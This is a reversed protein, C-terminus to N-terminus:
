YVAQSPPEVSLRQPIPVAARERLPTMPRDTTEPCTVVRQGRYRVYLRAFLVAFGVIFAVTVVIATM